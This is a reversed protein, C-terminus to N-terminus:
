WKLTKINLIHRKILMDKRGDPSKQKKTLTNLDNVNLTIKLISKSKGDQKPKQKDWMNKKERKEKPISHKKTNWQIKEIPKENFSYRKSNNRTQKNM